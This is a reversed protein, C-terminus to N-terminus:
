PGESQTGEVVSSVVDEFGGVSAVLDLKRRGAGNRGKGDFAGIEGGGERRNGARPNGSQGIRKRRSASAQDGDVTHSVFEKAHFDLLLGGPPM